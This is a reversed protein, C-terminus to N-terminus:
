MGLSREMATHPNQKPLDPRYQPMSLYDTFEINIDQGNVIDGYVSGMGHGRHLGISQRQQREQNALKQETALVMALGSGYVHRAFNLNRYPHIGETRQQLVDVPHRASAVSALSAGNLGTEMMSVPQKMLPISNTEHNSSM